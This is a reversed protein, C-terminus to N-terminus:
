GRKPSTVRDNVAGRGRRAVNIPEVGNRMRATYLNGYLHDVEHGVLRALGDSFVMVTRAGDLGTHEVELHLPRPAMGRHRDTGPEGQDSTHHCTVM